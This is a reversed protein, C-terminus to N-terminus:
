KIVKFEWEITGPLSNNWGVRKMAMKIYDPNLEIGICSRGLHRAVKMTTGSGLFPDLVTGSTWKDNLNCNCETWGITERKTKLTDQFIKSVPRNHWDPHVMDSYEVVCSPDYDSPREIEVIRERGKGCEKCVWEPCGSKIMPEVLKEPFVAFHSEPFPEITIDWVDGPNRGLPNYTEGITKNGGHTQSMSYEKYIKLLGRKDKYWESTHPLRIADLDFWYKKSKTLFFIPEYSKTFRDKVSEPMHNPKSWIIVNRLIWGQEDIMKMILRFNQMTMCKDPVNVKGKGVVLNDHKNKRRGEIGGVNGIGTSHSNYSDGHNWFMTGSKKLVRKLEATIQLLHHIYLELSPELGLQGYWANCNKCFSSENRYDQAEPMKGSTTSKDSPKSQQKIIKIEWEHECNGDGDWVINTLDGYDRLGWEV